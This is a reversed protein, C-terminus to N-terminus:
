LDSLGRSQEGSLGGVGRGDRKADHAGSDSVQKALGPRSQQCAARATLDIQESSSTM